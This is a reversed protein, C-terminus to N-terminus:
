IASGVKIVSTGHTRELAVHFEEFSTVTHAFSKSVQNYINSDPGYCMKLPKDAKWLWALVEVLISKNKILGKPLFETFPSYLYVFFDKQSFYMLFHQQCIPLWKNLSWYTLCGNM